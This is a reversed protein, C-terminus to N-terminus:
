TLENVLKHFNSADISPFFECNTNLLHYPQENAIVKDVGSTDKLGYPLNGYPTM